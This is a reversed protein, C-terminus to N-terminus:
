RRRLGRVGAMTALMGLDAWAAPPLPVVALQGTVRLNDIALDEDGADLQWVVRIALTSGVVGSLDATFTSFSDTVQVGNVFAASNFQSGDNMVTFINQWAGGDVSYEFAVYDTLDWDQNNDSARDEALDVHFQLANSGAISFTATTLIQPLSAGEGDIDQGAFFWGTANHYQHSSAINSGNTRTFYDSAGDTFEAISTTYGAGPTEFDLVFLDAAHAAGPAVAIAAIIRTKSM